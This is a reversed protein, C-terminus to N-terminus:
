PGYRGQQTGGEGATLCPSDSANGNAVTQLEYNYPFGGVFLPDVEINATGSGATGNFAFTYNFIDNFNITPTALPQTQNIGYIAKTSGMYSIINNRIVPNGSDVQIGILCDITNNEIFDNGLVAIGTQNDVFLNNRINSGATVMGIDCDRIVNYRVNLATSLGINLGVGCLGFETHEVSPTSGESKVGEDAFMVTSYRLLNEAQNTGIFKIGGWNARKPFSEASTFVIRRNETGVAMLGGQVILETMASGQSDPLSDRQTFKIEVGPEVTLVAGGRIRIDGQVVYPSEAFKWTRNEAVTGPTVVALTPSSASENGAVDIAKLQYYYKVAIKLGEDQYTTSGIGSVIPNANVKVFPGVAAESRYLNYGALDSENNNAWTLVVREMETPALIAFNMPVVPAAGSPTAFQYDSSVGENREFDLSRVRFHYTRGPLLNALLVKHDLVMSSDSAIMTYASLGIPGTAYDVSSDASENTKWVIEASNEGLNLVMVETIVPPLGDVAAFSLDAGELTDGRPIEIVKVVSKGDFTAVLKQQGPDVGMISYRGLEDTLVSHNAGYIEVRAKHLVKGNSDYVKGTVNGKVSSSSKLCGTVGILVFVAMLMAILRASTLVRSNKRTKGSRKKM